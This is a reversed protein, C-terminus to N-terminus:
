DCRYNLRSQEFKFEGEMESMTMQSGRVQYSKGAKTRILLRGVTGEDLVLYKFCITDIQSWVLVFRMDTELCASSDQLPGFQVGRDFLMIEGHSRCRGAVRVVNGWIRRADERPWLPATADPQNPSQREIMAQIVSDPVGQQTLLALSGTDLQFNTASANIKAIITNIGLGANVMDVVDSNTLPREDRAVAAGAILMIVAGVVALWAKWTSPMM